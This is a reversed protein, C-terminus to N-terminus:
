IRKLMPVIGKLISDKEKELGLSEFLHRIRKQEEDEGLNKSKLYLHSNTVNRLVHM